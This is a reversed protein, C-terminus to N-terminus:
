TLIYGVGFEGVKRVVENISEDCRQAKAAVFRLVAISRTSGTLNASVDADEDLIEKQDAPLGAMLQDRIEDAQATHTQILEEVCHVCATSGDEFGLHTHAHKKCYATSKEACEVCGMTVLSGNERPIPLMVITEPDPKQCLECNM